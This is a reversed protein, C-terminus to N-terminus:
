AAAYVSFSGTYAFTNLVVKNKSRDGIWKRTERHDLFLGTDLYDALNILFKHGYEEIVTTKAAVVPLSFIEQTRNKYFFSKINLLKLLVMEIQNCKAAQIKKFIHIVANDNYIDIAFQLEERERDYLRFAKIKNAKLYKERKQLCNQLLQFVFISFIAITHLFLM